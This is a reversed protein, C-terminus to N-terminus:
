IAHRWRFTLRMGLALLLVAGFGAGLQQWWHSRYWHRAHAHRPLAVFEPDLDQGAVSITLGHERGDWALSEGSFTVYTRDTIRELYTDLTTTMHEFSSVTRTTPIMTSIVQGPDSLEGKYIIAFTQINDRAARRKLDLLQAKAEDNNTDNGDGIVVLVRIAAHAGELQRLGADVGAVLDTGIKTYYDKQTGLAASSLNHISGLKLPVTVGDAYSILAAQSLCPLPMAAVSDVLGRIGNLAGIYHSPDDEPVISDNGMYVEQGNYVIAIAIPENSDAFTSVHAAPVAAARPETSERMTLASARLGGLGALTVTIQSTKADVDTGIVEARATGAISTVLVLAPIFQRM